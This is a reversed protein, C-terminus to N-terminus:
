YYIFRKLNRLSVLVKGLYTLISPIIALVAFRIYIKINLDVRRVSSGDDVRRPQWYASNIKSVLRDEKERYWEIWNAM